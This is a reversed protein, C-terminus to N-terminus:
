RRCALCMLSDCVLFPLSHAHSLNWGESEMWPFGLTCSVPAVHLKVPQDEAVHADAKGADAQVGKLVVRVQPPESGAPASEEPEQRAAPSAAKQV